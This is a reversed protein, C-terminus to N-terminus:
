SVYRGLKALEVLVRLEIEEILDDLEPAERVKAQRVLFLLRDLRAESVTGTLVELKLAELNDLLAHGRRIRKRRGQLPDDVAQLALIADIETPANAAYVSDARGAVPAEGITFAPRGAGAGGAASKGGVAPRRYPGEIKM